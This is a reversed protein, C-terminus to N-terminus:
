GAKRRKAAPAKAPPPEDEAAMPRVYPESSIAAGYYAEALGPFMDTHPIRIEHAHGLHAIAYPKPPPKGWHSWYYVAHLHSLFIKVAWRRAMADIVFEPLFGEKLKKRVAESQTVFTECRKAYHKNENLQTLEHKKEAYLKGYYSKESGYTRMFCQGAHWTIQRMAACWPRKQGPLWKVSPDLGAFRWIQGATQAIEINIHALLGASIVPGIGHQALLWKGVPHNSAFAKLEKEMDTELRAMTEGFHELIGGLDPLDGLQRLQMDARKRGDQARYYNSVAMRVAPLPLNKALLVQEKSLRPIKHDARKM